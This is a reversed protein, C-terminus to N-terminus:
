EENTQLKKMYEEKSVIRIGDDEDTLIKNCVPCWGTLPCSYGIRESIVEGHEPCIFKM